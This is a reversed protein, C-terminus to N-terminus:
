IRKAGSTGKEHFGGSSLHNGAHSRGTGRAGWRFMAAREEMFRTVAQSFKGSLVGSPSGLGATGLDAAPAPAWPLGAVWPGERPNPGGRRLLAM